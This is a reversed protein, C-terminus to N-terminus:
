EDLDLLQALPVAEPPPAPAEEAEVPMALPIDDPSVPLALPALPDPLLVPMAMPIAEQDPPTDEAAAPPLDAPPLNDWGPLVEERAPEEPPPAFVNKLRALLGGAPQEGPGPNPTPPDPTQNSM